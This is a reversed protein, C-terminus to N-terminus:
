NARRPPQWIIENEEMPLFSPPKEVSQHSEVVAKEEGQPVDTRHRQGLGSVTVDLREVAKAIRARGEETKVLEKM